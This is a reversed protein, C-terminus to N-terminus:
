RRTYLYWGWGAAHLLVILATVLMFPLKRRKHKCLQQGIVAGPWGGLLSVLHLTKEPIRRRGRIACSKDWAYMALAVVSLVGYICLVIPLMAYFLSAAQPGRRM